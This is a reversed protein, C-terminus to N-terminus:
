PFQVTATDILARTEQMGAVSQDTIFVHVSGAPRNPVAGQVFIFGPAPCPVPPLPARSLTVVLTDNRAGAQVTTSACATPEVVNFYLTDARPVITPIGPPAANLYRVSDSVAVQPFESAVPITFVPATTDGGCAVLVLMSFVFIRRVMGGSVLRVATAFRQDRM